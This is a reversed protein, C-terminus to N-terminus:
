DALEPPLPYDPWASRFAALEQQLAETRGAERLALLRRVWQEPDHERGAEEAEAPPTEARMEATDLDTLPEAAPPSVDDAVARDPRPVEESRAKAAAGLSESKGEVDAPVAQRLTPTMGAAEEPPAPRRLVEIEAAPDRLKGSPPKAVRLPAAPEQNPIKLVLAVGLVVIATTALAHIWGFNWPRAAKGDLARRARNLVALDIEEPPEDPPLERYAAAVREDDADVRDKDYNGSIM